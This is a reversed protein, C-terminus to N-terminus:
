AASQRSLAAAPICADFFPLDKSRGKRSYLKGSALTRSRYQPQRVARAMPNRPKVAPPRPPPKRGTAM